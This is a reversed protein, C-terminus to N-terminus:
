INLYDEVTIGLKSLSAQLAKSFQKRARSSRVRSDVETINLMQGIEKHSFDELNLELIERDKDPIRSLAQLFIRKKEDKIFVEDPEDEENGAVFNELPVSDGEETAFEQDLSITAPSKEGLRSLLLTVVIKKAFAFYSGEHEGRISSFYKVFRTLAEQSIDEQDQRSPYHKFYYNHLYYVWNWVRKSLKELMAPDISHANKSM